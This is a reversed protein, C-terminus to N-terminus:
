NMYKRNQKRQRKSNKLMQRIHWSIDFRTRKYVFYKEPLPDSEAHMIHYDAQELYSKLEQKSISGISCEEYAPKESIFVKGFNVTHEVPVKGIRLYDAIAAPLNMGAETLVYCVSSSRFNIENFYYTGDCLFLELDFLGYFHFSGLMSYLKDKLGGIRDIPDVRGLVTVGPKRKSICIKTLLAPIIVRDGTCIGSMSYEEEINLYRQLLVDARVSSQAFVSLQKKLESMNNACVMGNKGGQISALPKIFCPFQINEPLDYGGDQYQVKWCEASKIGFNGAIMNQNAKNMLYEVTYQEHDVYPIRFYKKLMEQNRGLLVSTYDDAPLIVANELKSFSRILEEVIVRDDHDHHQITQKVYKSLSATKIANHKSTVAYLYVDYGAEGLSRIVGLTTSYNSGMVIANKASM